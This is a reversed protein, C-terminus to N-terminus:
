GNRAAELLTRAKEEVNIRPMSAEKAVLMVGYESRSANGRVALRKGTFKRKIDEAIVETSLASMAIEKCKELSQGYLKETEERNLVITLAGTGDDLTAKIRMDYKGEVKGHARCINKQIVRNCHPCRQIIGSEPRISLIDGEVTVDFVGDRSVVDELPTAGISIKPELDPIRSIITGESINISPVGQWTKVYVNELKLTADKVIEPTSIWSTFPLKITEDAIIGIAITKKNQKVLIEQQKVELIKGTVTINRDGEKVEALKKIDPQEALPKLQPLLDPMKEVAAREGFNLEIAGKFERAYANSIKVVEGRKLDFDRWATFRLEMTEDGVMGSFITKESDGIKVNKSAVDLIKVLVEVNRDKPALENLKKAIAQRTFGGYKRIITRKAEDPPVHYELLLTKLDALIKAEDCGEGLARKIEEFHPSIDEM